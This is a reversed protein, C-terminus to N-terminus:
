STKQMSKKIEEFLDLQGPNSDSKLEKESRPDLGFQKFCQLITKEADRKLTVYVSVNKAGSIFTQIYGDGHKTKNKTRIERVAWEWQEYNESLIELAAIHTAKLIEATILIKGFKKFHKKAVASLYPPPSPLTKLFETGKGISVVKM